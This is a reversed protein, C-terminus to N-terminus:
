REPPRRLGDLVISVLRHVAAKSRATGAGALAHLCYSALEDAPADTRVDGNKACEAVLGRFMTRLKREAAALQEHGHLVAVLEPDHHRRSEHTILAYAELVAALRDFPDGARDRVGSLHHMHHTIQRHHWDALISEVDPYYKYLTARGIGTEEAIHSMGVSLLGNESVLTATAALIADRVDRRHAEITANWLKPVLVTYNM